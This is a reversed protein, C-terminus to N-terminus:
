KANTDTVIKVGASTGIRDAGSDILDSAAKYDKIGGSAKVMLGYKQAQEALLVIDAKTAGSTAFGTSTKVFKAGAEAILECAKVKEDNTLLATEIIVKVLEPTAAKVVASIDNKVFEYDKTKLAAINMVMDIEDAHNEVALKTELAKVETFTSGLPFGIVTVVKVKTDSLLHKALAVYIPNVCVAVFNNDRAEQCLQIIDDVTADAKLLTHEIYKNIM